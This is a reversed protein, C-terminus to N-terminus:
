KLLFRQVKGSANVPLEDVWEVTRPVKYNAMQERCWSILAKDDRVAGPKPVIVAHGVEGMREDPRGVVAVRAVDPHELLRAEIEAPYCNFGGCIFLDKARDTIRLYGREDQTAIDGTRLWGDADITEATAKPDDLYGKMVNFGRVLLEGPDGTAVDRDDAGVLRVEVGPIPRGCSSAVLEVPDGAQTASVCGSSETLGYATLVEAIGLEDHMRRILIPPVSAAGTV